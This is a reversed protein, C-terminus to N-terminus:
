EVTLPVRLLVTSDQRMVYRIEYSGPTDPVRITVPNGGGTNAYTEYRTSDPTSIAIYDGQYDPGDWGVVLEGGATATGDAVIQAKIATVTIPKRILTTSDQRMVYRVEYDGPIPPMQLTAPSGDSTNTYNIYRNGGAEDVALYDGPYNPGDWTVPISAGAPATDPLTLDAKVAYVTIPKTALVESDQRLHYRIEYDGPEPPMQLQVPNGDATNAYNIYRGGPEAVAIYDGQYNPGSWNVAVMSGAPANTSANVSVELPVVEIQRTAIVESDQRLQYRIDYTGPETPMQLALPNGEATNTYNIYRGGPEAVSIFDGDYDPGDWGVMVDAGVPATEPAVLRVALETVSIPLTALVTSGQRMVYQIEYDGPETPMQLQVTAGERTNAYNIYRGGPLAVAIYDGQYDPGTWTVAVDAGTAASDAANLTVTLPEVTIMKTAIAGSSARDIYRLEYTGPTPPMQLMVPNGDRVNAYNIYGSDDPTAVSIFDRDEGPGSWGVPITEGIVATAQAVLAATPAPEEFMAVVATEGGAIVVFNVNVTQELELSYATAVYAGEPLTQTLPNEALDEAVMGADSNIDWLVPSQILRNDEGIVASFTMPQTIIAPEAAVTQLAAGLEEANDATLFQGGTEDAICQMQALAAADAGVDFGVVHATFDIAAEELVRMAACPDPNCTEVGDSVLIVTASDETYRLAEAAAIISDTMPTKGLPKIANVADRIADRTDPGPAVITEIDTCNGRERHGYVTLGINQNDPLSEMLGGVVEQAITIKAVGDIQGWMSGSGDMVLITNPNDQATAAAGMLSLLLPLAFRRM